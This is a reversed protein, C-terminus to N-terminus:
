MSVNKIRTLIIWAAFLIFLFLLLMYTYSNKEFEGSVESVPIVTYLAQFLNDYHLEM